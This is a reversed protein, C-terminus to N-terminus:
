HIAYKTEKLRLEYIKERCKMYIDFALLAIRDFKEELELLVEIAEAARNRGEPKINGSGEFRDKPMEEKIVKKLLFIFSLAESPAFDQVARIKIINELSNNLKDMDMKGTIEDYIHEMEDKITFGVPNQFRDTSNKFVESSEPPYTEMILNLCRKIIYTKKNSLLEKIVM